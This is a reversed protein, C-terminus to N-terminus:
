DIQDVAVTVDVSITSATGGDVGAAQDGLSTDLVDNAAKEAADAGTQFDWRWTISPKDKVPIEGLITGADYKKSYDDLATNINTMLASAYTEATTSSDVTPSKIDKGNVSFVIPCYFKSNGSSDKAMWGELKLNSVKYSVEVAVEPTGSISVGALSGSTGPAVVKSEDSSIVTNATFENTDSAYSKLFISADDGTVDVGFKAVRATDSGKGSTTYKAFTGGVFCSTGLALVALVAAVKTIKNTKKMSKEGEEILIQPM